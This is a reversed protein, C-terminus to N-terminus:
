AHVMYSQIPHNFCAHIRIEGTALRVTTATPGFDMEACMRNLNVDRPTNVTLHPCLSAIHKDCTERDFRHRSFTASSPSGVCITLCTRGALMEQVVHM